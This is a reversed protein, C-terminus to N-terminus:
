SNVDVGLYDALDQASKLFKTRLEHFKDDKVEPYDSYNMFAYAFGECEVDEQIKKIEKGNM